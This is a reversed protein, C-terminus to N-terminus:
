HPRLAFRFGLIVVALGALQVLSPVEGLFLFGILLTAPPVMAPFAAARGAGLLMVARAYLHVGLAGAFVGQVLIQLLNEMVGVAAMRTFGFVVAHLPTYILFSVVCIAVAVRAAGLRWYRLLMGFTAWSLGAVMFSIDGALGHTGITAVGEAGLLLLGSLMLAAGVMRGLRLPEHLVATALLLGGLAASGPQIVAGHGLPALTFGLGSLYASGPGGLLALLVARGWGIGGLDAPGHRWALPLLLPTIWVFRHFALDAPSLGIQVGHRAAVFGAAWGLAAGLGCLTGVVNPSLGGLASRLRGFM